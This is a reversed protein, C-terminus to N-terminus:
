RRRPRRRLWYGRLTGPPAVSLGQNKKGKSMERLTPRLDTEAREPELCLRVPDEMHDYRKLEFTDVLITLHALKDLEEILGHVLTPGGGVIVCVPLNDKNSM